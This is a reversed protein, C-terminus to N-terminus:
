GFRAYTRNGAWDARVSCPDPGVPELHLEDGEISWRYTGSGPCQPNPRSSFTIEDGDVEIRGTGVNPLAPQVTYNGHAMFTLITVGLGTEARWRGLLEAPISAAPTAGPPSTRSAATASAGASSTGTPAATASAATPEITAVAQTSCAAISAAVALILTIARM